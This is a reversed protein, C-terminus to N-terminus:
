CLVCRFTYLRSAAITSSATSKVAELEQELEQIRVEHSISVATQDDLKAQLEGNQKNQQYMELFKEEKYSDYEQCVSAIREQLMTINGEETIEGDTRKEATGLEESVELHWMTEETLKSIGVTLANVM